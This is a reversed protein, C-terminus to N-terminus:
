WAIKRLVTANQLSVKLLAIGAKKATRSIYVENGSGAPNAAAIVTGDLAFLSAARMPAPANIRLGTETARVTVTQATANHPELQDAVGTIVAKVLTNSTGFTGTPMATEVNQPFGTWTAPASFASGQSVIYVEGKLHAGLGGGKSKCQAYGVCDCNDIIMFMSMRTNWSLSGSNWMESNRIRGYYVGPGTIEWNPCNTCGHVLESFPDKFYCTHPTMVTKGDPFKGTFGLCEYKVYTFGAAYNDPAQWGTAPQAQLPAQMYWGYFTYDFGLIKMQAGFATLASVALLFGARGAKGVIM